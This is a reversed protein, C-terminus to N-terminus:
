APTRLWESLPTAINRRADLVMWLPDAHGQLNGWVIRMYLGLYEWSAWSQEYAADAAPFLAIRDLGKFGDAVGLEWPVWRSDKSNATALLVFRSTQRIRGKLIAATEETTYPPMEPDIEDLYVSAGHGELVRTAGVVLDQDKSSHSLFTSGTLSRHTARALLRSREETSLNSAFNRLESKTIFQIM